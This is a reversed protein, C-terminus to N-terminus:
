QGYLMCRVQRSGDVAILEPPAIECDDMKQPCRPAFACGQPLRAFDPHDGPIAPLRKDLAAGPAPPVCQLLGRTYPHLPQSYIQQPTGSEVIQGAYMVLLREALGNLVAPHHTILLMGLGASTKLDRLLGLIAAQNVTDLSATPEDALLLSPSCALAQAILVRQLQGGSLQHPYSRCVRADLAVRALAERAASRCRAAPWDRHAGFVEAVQEGVQMVPNLASRPEQFIVAVQAGRIRQLEAETLTLLERGNFRASGRVSAGPPLLGMIALAATSKGCGSEGLLGVVEGAGIEFSLGRVVSIGSAYSVVLDCLDLIVPGGTMVKLKTPQLDGHSLYIKQALHHGM